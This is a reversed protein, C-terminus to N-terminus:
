DLIKTRKEIVTFRIILETGSNRKLELEGDLQEVLSTVLRLGLSDLNKIDFNEPIGVGNDSVSLIFNTSKCDECKNEEKHLKIRIEGKDRGPFAYKFSNSILENIITGLPIATDMDLFLDEELDKNLSIDTNGLRYTLVLNDALKKIYESFNLKDFREGRHLEEHILAMSKVRNQSESFADLMESDKIDKRGKFKYAQLDLLSSIIQLNNKIRHHIEKERAIEFSALAQEAEKRMTIDTLMSISGMFKGDKDFLPKANVLAWLLSHDKHTLKLEYSNDIGLLRKRLNLKIIAKSEEDLFGWIPRGISEELTYGLMDAMKKNAYTILAENDIILIGENATEVINRYKEESERLKEEVIKRDTIDRSIFSIAILKGHLDFVPSLTISVNIEQGNKRLRLTEYQHISEGQKVRESLEKTEDGLHSPAVFSTQKGLSEEASYGYVQEAGKNWSTIIGELSITGIADNSSGVINALNRIKEESKKLETIDQVIGKIRVPINKKDFIVEIYTHVKREEGNASIITYEGAVPEGHLAKKVANDVRDRDDPHVCSLFEDYNAGSEQPNRGFICYLEYSWHVEGTVLNWDLNGIHAMQQAEALGKESEKLLNFAIELEETREKVLNELNDLTEKLKAEAKKSDTIDRSIALVSIVKGDVFEPVIKTNFYYKKGQLSIYQYELTETKGTVFTKELHEDWFKVKKPTRGLEGQTKGVIEDLSIDYSEVAAPNAFVHRYQRDFRTIIDPSNEALTRFRIESEQLAKEAQKRETIDTLMALSGTFKGDKNFSAKSSVLVWLSSGDKCILELEYVQNIGQKKKELNLKPIAKGEEDVFDYISRGIIDRRNYKLMEAMKENVYTTRAKSDVVIIGETATEVINRYKEVSEGLTELLTNREALSRILKINSYGLQSLINAFTMFFAMSTDVAERSFRPVKELAAIYEEENFGYKKAQSRFLEYDLPEDEFFFQGSFFNGVHQGNVTIPTAVDWMNNKCKYLKYEGPPIGASLQTRSEICHKGAEPHARHFKACIDHWGVSVLVNGKLDNLGIPIHALKNFDDMLSQIAQGDVIEALELDAIEQAKSEQVKEEFEKQDSIDFGYINVCEEEPLPHFTVLYVRKGVKIEMKEPSNRSIVRQVFGGISSPLKEGVGVGWINLLPEGAKNSYLVTGDKEVSLVPNPNNAPFQEMKSKM